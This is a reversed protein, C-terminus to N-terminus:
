QGRLTSLSRIVLHKGPRETKYKETVYVTTICGDSQNFNIGVSYKLKGTVKIKFKGAPM